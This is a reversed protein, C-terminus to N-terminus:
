QYLISSILGSFSCAHQGRPVTCAHMALSHQNRKSLSRVILELRLRREGRKESWGKLNLRSMCNSKERVYIM